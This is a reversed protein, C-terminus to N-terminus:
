EKFNILIWVQPIKFLAALFMTHVDQQPMQSFIRQFQHIETRAKIKQPFAVGIEETTRFTKEKRVDEDVSTRRKVETRAM